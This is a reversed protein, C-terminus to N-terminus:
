EETRWYQVGRAFLSEPMYGVAVWLNLMTRYLYDRIEVCNRKSSFQQWRAQYAALVEADDHNRPSDIKKLLDDDKAHAINNRTDIFDRVLAWTPTQKEIDVNLRKGLLKLKEMIPKKEYNKDDTIVQAGLHCLFAELAFVRFLLEAMLLDFTDRPNEDALREFVNATRWHDAYAIFKASLIQTEVAAM